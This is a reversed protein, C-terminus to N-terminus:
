LRKLSQRRHEPVPFDVFFVPSEAALSWLWRFSMQFVPQDAVFLLVLGVHCCGAGLVLRTRICFQGSEVVSIDEACVPIMEYFDFEEGAPMVLYAALQAVGTARYLPVEFVACRAGVGVSPDAQLGMFYAEDM